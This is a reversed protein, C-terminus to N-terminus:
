LIDKASEPKMADVISPKTDFDKGFEMLSAAFCLIIWSIGFSNGYLM